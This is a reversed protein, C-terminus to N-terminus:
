YPFTTDMIEMKFQGEILHGHPSQNGHLELFLSCVLASGIYMCELVQIKESVWRLITVTTTAGIPYGNNIM